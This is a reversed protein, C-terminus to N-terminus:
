FHINAGMRNLAGRNVRFWDLVEGVSKTLRRVTAFFDTDRLTNALIAAATRREEESTGPDTALRLLKEVRDLDLRSVDLPSFDRM